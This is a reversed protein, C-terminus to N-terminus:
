NDLLFALHEVCLWALVNLLKNSEYSSEKKNGGLFKYLDKLEEKDMANHRFIGFSKVMEVIEIGQEKALEELLSNIEIQNKLAFKHTDSYYTFGGIGCSADRYDSINAKFEKKSIGIQRLVANQLKTEM